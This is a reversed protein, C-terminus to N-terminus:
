TPPPARSGVPASRRGAGAGQSGVIPGASPLSAQASATAAGLALTVAGIAVAVRAMRAPGERVRCRSGVLIRTRAAKGIADPVYIPRTSIRSKESAEPTAVALTLVSVLRTLSM